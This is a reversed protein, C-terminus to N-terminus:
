GPRSVKSHYLLVEPGEISEKKMTETFLGNKFRKVINTRIRSTLLTSNVDSM